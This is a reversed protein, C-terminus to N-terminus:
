SEGSLYTGLSGARGGPDKYRGGFRPGELVAEASPRSVPRSGMLSARHGPREEGRGRAENRVRRREWVWDWGEGAWSPAGAGPAGM